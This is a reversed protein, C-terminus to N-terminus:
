VASAEDPKKVHVQSLLEPSYQKMIRRIAANIQQTPAGALETETRDAYDTLFLKRERLAFTHSWNIEITEPNEDVPPELAQGGAAVQVADSDSVELVWADGNEMSFFIFVGLERLRAKTDAAARQIKEIEAILSIKMKAMPSPTRGAQELPLCCHKYKKGSGCPCPQNRGIKAM